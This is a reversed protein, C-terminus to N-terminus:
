KLLNVHGNYTYQGDNLLDQARVVWTYIGTQCMRGQFTGDWGAEPDRSEWVVEGWRNYVQLEFDYADIGVIHIRWNQNHEDGEPTFANPAYMLVEPLVVLPLTITDSCGLDSTTILTVDYEGELGDPFMVSPNEDISTSPAGDEFTWQYTSGNSSLNTFNVQTNFMLVPNPSYGFNAEPVPDVHLLDTFTTSDICGNTSTIILQVDYNGAYFDWTVITNQNVFQQNGDVLWYSGLTNPTANVIEFVAPECQNPNLVNLSPVPLPAVNVNTNLVLPTSECGDTITIIYDTTSNPSVAIQDSVAATNTTGTSWTFTYPAGLGGAATAVLDSSFGPCITDFISITGSLSGLLSVDISESPSQCGNQNEVYVTYTTTAAPTVSQSGNLDATHGWHFDFNTGGSASALLQATGNECITTDNSVTIVVPAPDVITVADCLQCGMATVSCVNYTGAGLNLSFSDVQWLGGGDFSYELALNNDVLIQGDSDGACTPDVVTITQVPTEVGIVIDDTKTCSPSFSLDDLCFDNGGGSINQNVICITISTNAGSNWTDQYQAWLGAVTPPSFVSGIAVGNVFFQLIGVNTGNVASAVWASFTYDANPTVSVTQCWVSTNPISSGNVVLMNGPGTTGHDPFSSFNNHVLSPSTTIAYTGPNSLQGWTGGSGPVYDTTIANSSEFGPDSIVNGLSSSVDVSYTGATSVTITQTTANNSWLYDDFGPGADLTITSGACITTDNGLDIDPMIEVELTSVGVSCNSALTYQYTGNVNVTPDFTGQDGNSLQSPGSWSGGQGINNSFLTFLDVPTTQTCVGYVRHESPATACQTILLNEVCIDVGNGGVSNCHIVFRLGPTTANFNFTIQQYSNTLNLTASQLIAGADDIASYTVNTSGFSQRTWFTVTVASDVCFGNVQRDYVDVDGLGNVVNFWGHGGGSLTYAANTWFGSGYINATIAGTIPAANFPEDLIVTPNACQSWANLFFTIFFSLSLLYKLM